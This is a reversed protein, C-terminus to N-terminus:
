KKKKKKKNRTDYGPEFISIGYQAEILKKKLKYLETKFKKFDAYVQHGDEIWTFDFILKFISKSDIFFSMPVQRKLDFIEGNQERGKLFIWYEYEGTSHFYGESNRVPSSQIRPRKKKM